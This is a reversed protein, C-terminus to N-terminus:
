GLANSATIAPSTGSVMGLNTNTSSPATDADDYIWLSGTDGQYAIWPNLTGSSAGSVIAPSTGTAMVLGSDISSNNGVDYTFLHGTSAQFAAESSNGNGEISPSTGAAPFAITLGSPYAVANAAGAASAMLLMILGAMATLALLRRRRERLRM